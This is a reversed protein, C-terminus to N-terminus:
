THLSAVAEQNIRNHADELANDLVDDFYGRLFYYMEPVIPPPFQIIQEMVTIFHNCSAITKYVVIGLAPFLPVLENPLEESEKWIGIDSFPKLTKHILFGNDEGGDFLIQVSSGRHIINDRFSKLINFFSSNAAYCEALYPPLGYKETLKKKIEVRDGGSVMKSFTEKLPKKKISEDLLHISNWISRLIEQFLDFMSRCLSFLYEIETIIMRHAGKGIIDKTKSIHKIKALSASINYIDDVLGQFPKLMGSFNSCQAIFSLFHIYIDSQKEPSKSFYGAEAPSVIQIEIPKSEHTLIWMKWKKDDYFALSTLFRGPIQSSDIYPIVSLDNSNIHKM